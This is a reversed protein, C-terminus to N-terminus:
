LATTPTGTSTVFPAQAWAMYVYTEGAANSFNGSGDLKFGDSQFWFDVQNSHGDNSSTELQNAMDNTNEDNRPATRWNMLGWDASGSTRKFMVLAPKFGTYIKPGNANGNGVYSGFKSYGKIGAFVYSMYNNDNANVGGNTGVTFVSTTPATDNWRASDDLTGDDNNWYLQDTEPASTNAGHYLYWSWGGSGRNKVIILEPKVGLGHAITGAAGTGVYRIMSFGATANTQRTNGPNNGSETVASENTGANCNWAMCVYNKSNGNNQNNVGLTFGDSTATKVKGTDSNEANTSAPYLSVGDGSGDVLGRCTDQIDWHDSGSDYRKTLFWDPQMDSNGDFTMARDDTGNGVYKIVQFYKTPDDITTYAM